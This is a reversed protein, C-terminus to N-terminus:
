SLGTNTFTGKFALTYIRLTFAEPITIHGEGFAQPPPASIPSNKWM